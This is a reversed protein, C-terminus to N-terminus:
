LELFLYGSYHPPPPLTANICLFVIALRHSLRYDSKGASLRKKDGVGLSLIPSLVLLLGLVESLAWNKRKAAPRLAAM